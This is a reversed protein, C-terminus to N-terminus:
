SSYVLYLLPYSKPSVMFVTRSLYKDLAHITTVGTMASQAIKALCFM